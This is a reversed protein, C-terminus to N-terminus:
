LLGYISFLSMTGMWSRLSPTASIWYDMVNGVDEQSQNEPVGDDRWGVAAIARM